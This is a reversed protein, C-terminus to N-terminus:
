GSLATATAAITKPCIGKAITAIIKKGAGVISQIGYM